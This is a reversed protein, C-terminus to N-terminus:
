RTPEQTQTFPTNPLSQRSRGLARSRDRFEVESIEGRAYRAHLIEEASAPDRDSSSANTPHWALTRALGWLLAVGIALWVIWWAWHLGMYMGEHHGHPFAQLLSTATM